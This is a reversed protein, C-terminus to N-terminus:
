ARPSIVYGRVWEVLYGLLRSTTPVSESSAVSGDSKAGSARQSSSAGGGTGRRPSALPSCGGM